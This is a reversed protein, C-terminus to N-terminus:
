CSLKKLSSHNIMEKYNTDYQITKTNKNKISKIPEIIEIKEIDVQKSDYYIKFFLLEFVYCIFLTAIFIYILKVPKSKDDETESSMNNTLYLIWVLCFISILLITYIISITNIM